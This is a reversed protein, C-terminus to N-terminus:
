AGSFFRQSSKRRRADAAMLAAVENVGPLAEDPVELPAVSPVARSSAQAAAANRRLEPLVVAEVLDQALLLLLDDECCGLTATSQLLDAHERKGDCLVLLTRQRPLLGPTRQQIVALGKDTKKYSTPM